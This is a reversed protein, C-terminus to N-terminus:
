EVNQYLHFITRELKTPQNRRNIKGAVWQRDRGHRPPRALAPPAAPPACPRFPSPSSKHPASEGGSILLYRRFMWIPNRLLVSVIESVAFPSYGAAAPPSRRRVLASPAPSRRERADPVPVGTNSRHICLSKRVNRSCVSVWETPFLHAILIPSTTRSGVVTDFIVLSKLLLHTTDKSPRLPDSLRRTSSSSQSETEKM